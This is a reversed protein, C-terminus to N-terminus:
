GQIRVAFPEAVGRVDIRLADDDQVFSLEEGGLLTVRNVNFSHFAGRALTEVLAVGDKPVGLVIAYLAGDRTTFRVDRSTYGRKQGDTFGGQAIKTPGEGYVAFPRTGYIAEGYRALWAGVTRLLREDEEHISGDPKPGVNLLLAGNKSVIDCLDGIIEDPDKWVQDETYGWSNRALATDSQWFPTRIDALQGREVDFVAMDPELGEVKYVIAVEEGWERGRNYYYAVFRKLHERMPNIKIWWDFYIIKPRYNDVLEVCRALWDDMFEQTIGGSYIKNENDEPSQGMPGYFEAYNPDLVDSPFDRGGNMFWWHEVRHSSLGRVLGRADFSAHLEGLVDRKPGMEAANFRCLDSKYMQFGDHHEAVPVVYKAGAERFLDAWTEASFNPASFLPIFDKYGFKTHEGWTEVHHKYEKSDKQYMNRAYWENAFAPVSYLGWHIFIGFKGDVLWAPTKFQRLSEWTPKFMGRANVADVRRLLEDKLSENV